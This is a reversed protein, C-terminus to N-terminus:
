GGRSKGIARRTRRADVLFVFTWVLNAAVVGSAFWVVADNM